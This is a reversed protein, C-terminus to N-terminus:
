GRQAPDKLRRIIVAADVLGVAALAIAIVPLWVPGDLLFLMVTIVAFAVVGFISLGLRMRLPSRAAVPERGSRDGLPSQLWDRVRSLRPVNRVDDFGHGSM